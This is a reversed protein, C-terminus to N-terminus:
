EDEVELDYIDPGDKIRRRNPWVIVSRRICACRPCPHTGLQKLGKAIDGQNAKVQLWWEEEDNRAVLDAGFLDKKTFIVRDKVYIRSTQEANGVVWGDAELWKKTKLKHYSGKQTNSPM